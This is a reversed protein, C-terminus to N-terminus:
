ERRYWVFYLIVLWCLMIIAGTFAYVEIGSVSTFPNEGNINITFGTENSDSKAWDPDFTYAGVIFLLMVPSVLLVRGEESLAAGLIVIATMALSGIVFAASAHSRQTTTSSLALILSDLYIASLIAVFCAQVLLEIHDGELFLRDIVDGGLAFGLFFYDFVVPLLTFVCTLLFLALFKGSLYEIVSIRSRYTDISEYLLDDAFLPSGLLGVYVILLMITLPNELLFLAANLYGEEFDGTAQVAFVFGSHFLILLLLYLGTVLKTLFSRTISRTVHFQFVSWVRYLRGRFGGTYTRYGYRKVYTM